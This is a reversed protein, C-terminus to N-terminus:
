KRVIVDPLGILDDRIVFEGPIDDGVVGRVLVIDAIHGQSTEIQFVADLHEFEPASIAMEGFLERAPM